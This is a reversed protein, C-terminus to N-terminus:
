SELDKLDGIRIFIKEDGDTSIEWDKMDKFDDWDSDESTHWYFHGDKVLEIELVNGKKAREISENLLIDVLNKM